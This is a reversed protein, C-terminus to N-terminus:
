EEGTAQEKVNQSLWEDCDAVLRDIEQTTPWEAPSDDPAVDIMARARAVLLSADTLRRELSKALKELMIARAADYCELVKDTLPTESVSGAAADLPGDAKDNARFCQRALHCGVRNECQECYKISDEM